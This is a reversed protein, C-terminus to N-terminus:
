KQSDYWIMWETLKIVVERADGGEELTELGQRVLSILELIKEDMQNRRPVCQTYRM